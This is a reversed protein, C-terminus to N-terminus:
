GWYRAKARFIAVNIRFPFELHFLGNQHNQHADSHKRSGCHRSEGIVAAVSGVAAFTLGAAFGM